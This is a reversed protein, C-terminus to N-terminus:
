VLSETWDRDVCVASFTAERPKHTQTFRAIIYRKEAPQHDLISIFFGYPRKNQYFATNSRGERATDM